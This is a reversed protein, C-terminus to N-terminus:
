RRALLRPLNLGLYSAAGAQIMQRRSIRPGPCSTMEIDRPSPPDAPLVIM